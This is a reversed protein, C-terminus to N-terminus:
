LAGECFVSLFCVSRNYTYYVDRIIRLDRFKERIERLKQRIRNVPHILQPSFYIYLQSTDPYIREWKHHSRLYISIPDVTILLSRSGRDQTRWPLLPLFVAGISVPCITTTNAATRFTCIKIMYYLRYQTGQTHIYHMAFCHPLSDYKKQCPIRARARRTSVYRNSM